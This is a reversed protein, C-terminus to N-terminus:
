CSRQNQYYELSKYELDFNRGIATTAPQVIPEPTTTEQINKAAVQDKLAKIEKILEAIPDSSKEDPLKPANKFKSLDMEIGNIIAKGDRISAAVPQSDEELRTAFGKEVATAASMWTEDELMQALEERDVGTRAVYIDSMSGGVEELDDALKRFDKANGMGFTWPNHIMLMSGNPMIIEDGAMAIISAISAAIGDIYVTIKAKHRKLMSHIAVGAFVSGGNSNIRVTIDDVDDGLAKLEDNFKQPTVASDDWYSEYTSIDGYIMIEASKAQIKKMKWKM